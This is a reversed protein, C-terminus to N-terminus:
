NRRVTTSIKIKKISFHTNPARYKSTYRVRSFFIERLSVAEIKEQVTMSKWLLEKKEITEYNIKAGLNGKYLKKSLYTWLKAKYSVKM